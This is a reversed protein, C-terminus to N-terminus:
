KRYQPAPSRSLMDTTGRGMPDALAFRHNGQFRSLLAYRESPSMPQERQEIQGREKHRKAVEAPDPMRMDEALLDVKAEIATLSVTTSRQSIIAHPRV